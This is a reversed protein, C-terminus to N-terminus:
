KEEEGATFAKVGLFKKYYSPLTPRGRPAPQENTTEKNPKQNKRKIEGDNSLEIGTTPAVEIDKHTTNTNKPVFVLSGPHWTNRNQSKEKKKQSNRMRRIQAHLKEIEIATKDTETLPPSEQKPFNNANRDLKASEDINQQSTAISGGNSPLTVSEYELEELKTGNGMVPFEGDLLFLPPPPFEEQQEVEQQTEEQQLEQQQSEEQQEQQQVNQETEKEILVIEIKQEEEVKEEQTEEQLKKEQKEEQIEEQVNDKQKESKMKELMLYEKGEKIIDSYISPDIVDDDTIIIDDDDVILVDPKHKQSKQRIPKHPVGEGNVHNLEDHTEDDRSNEDRSDDRVRDVSTLSTDHSEIIDDLEDIIDDPDVIVDDGEKTVDDNEKTVDDTEKTVDDGEKIVDDVEKTVDDTEKIVDDNEKIVDDAEKIVDDAEKIVDDAEKIVDDNENIIDDTEKIVDANEKIVDDPVKTHVTPKIPARRKTVKPPENQTAKRVPPIPRPPGVKTPPPSKHPPAPRPPPSAPPEGTKPPPPAKRKNRVPAPPKKTSADKKEGFNIERLNYYNLSHKLNFHLNPLKPHHLEVRGRTTPPLNLKDCIVQFVLTLPQDPNVRVIIQRLRDLHVLLRVTSQEKDRVTPPPSKPVNGDPKREIKVSSLGLKGVALSAKRRTAGNQSSDGVFDVTHLSPSLKFNSCLQTRLDSLPTNAPITTKTKSKDPLIVEITIDYDLDSGQTSESDESLYVDDDRKQTDTM